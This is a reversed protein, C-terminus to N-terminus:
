PVLFFVGHERHVRGVIRRNGRALVEVITGQPRGRPDQGSVRVAARDGHLVQRMEAPPLFVAAGGDDPILLGHGDRHGEIRGAIVAIREAALFSGARNQVVRGARELQALAHNFAGGARAGVDLGATLDARTLPAGARELAALIESAYSDAAAAPRRASKARRNKSM